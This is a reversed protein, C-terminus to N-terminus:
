ARPQVTGKTPQVLTYQVSGKCVGVYCVPFRYGNSVVVQRLQHTGNTTCVGSYIGSQTCVEGTNPM